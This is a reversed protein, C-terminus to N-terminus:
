CHSCDRLYDCKECVKYFKGHICPIVDETFTHEKFKEAWEKADEHFQQPTLANRTGPRAKAAVMLDKFGDWVEQIGAPDVTKPPDPGQEAEPAAGNMQIRRPRQGHNAVLERQDELSLVHQIELVLFAKKTTAPLVRGTKRQIAQILAPKTVTQLKIIDLPGRDLIALINLKELVIQLQDGNFNTWTNISNKGDDGQKEFFQFQINIDKMAEVLRTKNGQYVSYMVVQNILKNTIRMRLHLEDPIMRHYPIFPLLDSEKYGLSEAANPQLCEEQRQSTRQVDCDKTFNAIDHKHCHCWLCFHSSNAANLGKLLAMAKWDSCLLWAVKVTKGKVQYGHTAAEKMERIIRRSATEFTTRDEKGMYLLLTIEDDPSSKRTYRGHEIPPILKCVARVSDKCKTIKAGDSAFRLWITIIDEETNLLPRNEPLDMLYSVMESIQRMGGDPVGQIPTIEFSTGLRLSETNLYKTTPIQLGAQIRLAQLAKYSIRYKDKVRLIKHTSELKQEAETLQAAQPVGKVQLSFTKQNTVEFSITVCTTDVSSDEFITDLVRKM